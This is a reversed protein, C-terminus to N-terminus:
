IVRGGPLPASRAAPPRESPKEEEQQEQEAGAGAGEGPSVAPGCLRAGAGLCGRQVGGEGSPVGLAARRLWLQGALGPLRARAAAAGGAARVVKSLRAAAEAAM